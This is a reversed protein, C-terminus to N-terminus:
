AASGLRMEMPTMKTALTDIMISPMSSYQFDNDSHLNPHGSYYSNHAADRITDLILKAQIQTAYRYGVIGKKQM